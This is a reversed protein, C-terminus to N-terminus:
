PLLQQSEINKQRILRYRLIGITVVTLIMGAIVWGIDGKETGLTDILTGEEAGKQMYAGIVSLSNNLAHAIVPLWINGSWVLLYGFFAGLLMRPVFGYFQFHVASFLIATTWVAIHPDHFKNLFLRQLIGRFVFEEGIGTLIGVILIMVLLEALNSMQMMEATLSQANAEQTKLWAELGSLSSPFTISENWEIILNMAPIAFFLCLAIGAIAGARPAHDAQLYKIPNGGFLYAACLAPCIFLLLDQITLAIRTLTIGSVTLSLAITVLSTLCFFLLEIGIFILSKTGFSARALHNYLIRM